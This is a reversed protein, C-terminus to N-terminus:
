STTSNYSSSLNHSNGIVWFYIGKIYSKLFSGDSGLLDTFTDGNVIIFFAFKSANFNKISQFAEAVSRSEPLNGKFFNTESVDLYGMVTSSLSILFMGAPSSSINKGWVVVNENIIRPGNINWQKGGINLTQRLQYKFGEEVPAGFFEEDDQENAVYFEAGILGLNRIESVYQEKSCSCRYRVGNFITLAEDYIRYLIVLYGGKALLEKCQSLLKIREKHPYYFLFNGLVIINFEKFINGEKLVEIINLANGEILIIEVKHNVALNIKELNKHAYKLMESSIDVGIIKGIGYRIAYCSILGRGIALDLLSGGKVLASPLVKNFISEAADQMWGQEDAAYINAFKDYYKKLEETFSSIEFDEKRAASSSSGVRGKGMRIKKLIQSYTPNDPQAPSSACKTIIHSYTEGQQIRNNNTDVIWARGKRDFIVEHPEKFEGAGKGYKGIVIWRKFALSYVQIRNNGADAIWLNGEPDFTIGRPFCFEGPCSGRRGFIKWKRSTLDFKQIRHNGTDSVWLNDRLDISVNRPYYFEGARRGLRGLIIWKDVHRYYIKIRHNDCDAIWARGKRDFVLDRPVNLESIGKGRTGVIFWRDGNADSIQIRHNGTDTVWTNGYMDVDLGRPVNFEGPLNGYAGIVEIKDATIDLRQLRYNFTDAIVLRDRSDFALSTPEIFEGPKNGLGGFVTWNLDLHTENAGEVPSSVNIASLKNSIALLQNESWVGNAMHWVGNM